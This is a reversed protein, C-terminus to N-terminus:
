SFYGYLAIQKPIDNYFMRKINVPIETMGNLIVNNKNKKCLSTIKKPNYGFYRLTYLSLGWVTKYKPSYVFLVKGYHNYILKKDDSLLYKLMRVKREPTENILDINTYRIDKTVESIVEYSFRKLDSIYDSMRETKLFTWWINQEKYSKKLINFDKIIEKAKNYGIVLTPLSKDASSIDDCKNYFLDFDVKKYNTIINAIPKM